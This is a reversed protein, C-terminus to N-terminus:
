DDATAPGTPTAGGEDTWGESEDAHRAPDSDEDNELDVRLDPETDAGIDPVTSYSSSSM